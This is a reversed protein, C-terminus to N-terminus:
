TEEAPLVRDTKIQYIKHLHIIVAISCGIVIPPSALLEGYLIYLANAAASLIRLSLINKADDFVFEIRARHLGSHSDYHTQILFDAKIKKGIVRCRAM